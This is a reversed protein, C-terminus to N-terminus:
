QLSDPDSYFKGEIEALGKRNGDWFLSPNKGDMGKEAPGKRTTGKEPDISLKTRMIVCVM